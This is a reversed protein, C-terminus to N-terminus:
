QFIKVFGSYREFPAVYVNLEGKYATHLRIRREIDRRVIKDANYYILVALLYIAIYYRSDKFVFCNIFVFLIPTERKEPFASRNHLFVTRGSQRIAGIRPKLLYSGCLSRMACSDYGSLAAINRDQCPERCDTAHSRAILM